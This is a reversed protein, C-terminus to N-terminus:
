PLRPDGDFLRDPGAFNGCNTIVSIIVARKAALAHNTCGMKEYDPLRTVAANTTEHNNKPHMPVITENCLACARKRIIPIRFFSEAIACIKEALFGGIRTRPHNRRNADAQAEAEACFM